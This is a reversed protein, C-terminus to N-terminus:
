PNVPSSVAAPDASYHVPVPLAQVKDKHGNWWSEWQAPDDGLKQGSLRELAAIAAQKKETGKKEAEAALAPDLGATAKAMQLQQRGDEYFKLLAPVARMDGIEGLVRAYLPRFEYGENTLARVLEPVAPQGIQILEQAYRERNEEQHVIGALSPHESDPRVTFDQNRTGDPNFAPRNPDRIVKVQENVVVGDPKYEMRRILDLVRLRVEAESPTPSQARAHGALMLGVLWVAFLKEAGTM